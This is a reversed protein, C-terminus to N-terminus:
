EIDAKGLFREADSVDLEGSILKPQVTDRLQQLVRSEQQLVIQRDVLPQFIEGLKELTPLDPVACVARQLERKDVHRIVTSKIESLFLLEPIFHEVWGAVFWLPVGRGEVKFVSRGLAGKDGAWYKAFVSGTWSFLFDGDGVILDAPANSTYFDDDTHGKLLQTTTILPIRDKDELHLHKHRGTGKIFSGIEDLSKCQWGKPIKGIESGTREDPLLKKLEPALGYLPSDTEAYVPNFDVFWSKFVVKFTEKLIKVKKHNHNTKNELIDLTSIIIKQKELSPFKVPIDLFASPELLNVTSWVATSLWYSLYQDLYYFLFKTQVKNESKSTICYATQYLNFDGSVYQLSVDKYNSSVIIVPCDFLYKNSKRTTGLQPYVNSKGANKRTPSEAAVNAIDGLKVECWESSLPSLLLKKQLVYHAKQINPKFHEPIDNWVLVDVEFPLNSEEFAERLNNVERQQIKDTFVALDLDSTPRSQFTIRSGFAWVLTNPLHINLLQKVLQYHGTTLDINDFEKVEM